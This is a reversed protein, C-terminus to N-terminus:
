WSEITDKNNSIDVCSLVITSDGIVHQAQMLTFDHCSLSILICNRIFHEFLVDAVSSALYSWSQGLISSLEQLPNINFVSAFSILLLFIVTTTGNWNCNTLKLGNNTQALRKKKIVRCSCCVAHSSFVFWIFLFGWLSIGLVVKYVLARHALFSEVINIALWGGHLLQATCCVINCQAFFFAIFFIFFFVFSFFIRACMVRTYLLHHRRNLRLNNLAVVLSPCVPDIPLIVCKLLATSM